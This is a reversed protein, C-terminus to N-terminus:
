RSGGRTLGPPAGVGWEDRRSRWTSWAWGLSRAAARQSGCVRWADEMAQRFLAGAERESTGLRGALRRVSGSPSESRAQDGLDDVEIMPRERLAVARELVQLLQRVEGPWPRATLAAAARVSLEVGPANCALWDVAILAIDGPRESLGPLQLVEGSIRSWLDPRFEGSRTRAALDERTATILRVDVQEGRESGLPRVHQEEVVKLLRAQDPLPCEAVEDLFLTGGHARVVAGRRSAHADTYAGRVVGLLEAAFLPGAVSPVDVVEFPGSRGSAGHIARAFATKGSGSPGTLLLPLRSRALRKARDVVTAMAGPGYVLAGFRAPQSAVKM